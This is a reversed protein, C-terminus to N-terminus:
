GPTVRLIVGPDADQALYLNGDPGQVAVRLRGQDTIRVTEAIVTRGTTDFRLVRLQSGKLVAVALGDNWGAWQGGALFGGGSPAITPCGSSWVADIADPFKVKDTMPVNGNYPGGGGPQQPDWGYNGGPVLLNVEDDCSPGHEISYAKGDSPRFGVGQVNRHGYTYIEQRLPPGPNDPAGRGRRDIRLVKGGLSNPDQATTAQISDGTTVWLYGDPGFRLRCGVHAVLISEPSVPIGTLIDERGSLATFSDNVRWRVVRVDRTGSANSVMCTFIRRNSAFGPDVALGMMGAEWNVVVDGPAALQRVQGSVHANITGSKETFLMTGGPAFAIDWPRHLGSVVVSVSLNAPPTVCASAILAVLVVPVAMLGLGLRKRM